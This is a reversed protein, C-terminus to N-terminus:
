ERFGNRDQFVTGDLLQVTVQEGAEFGSRDSPVVLLGDAKAMSLLVGSSQTGTSSAIYGADDHTMQVRIFETRGPRIKVPHALRATVTRRYLRSNGMMGRLAPVVFEEFCVM